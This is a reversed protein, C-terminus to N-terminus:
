RTGGLRRTARGRASRSQRDRDPLIIVRHASCVEESSCNLEIVHCQIEAIERITEQRTSAVWGYLSRHLADLLACTGSKENSPQV